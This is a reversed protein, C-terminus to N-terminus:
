RTIAVTEAFEESPTMFKLTEDVPGSGLGVANQRLSRGAALGRSIEERQELSLHRAARKPITPRIGGSMQIRRYMSAQQKDFRRALQSVSQGEM